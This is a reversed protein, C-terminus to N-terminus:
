KKAIDGLKVSLGAYFSSEQELTRPTKGETYTFELGIKAVQRPDLPSVTDVLTIVASAQFWEATTRAGNLVDQLYFYKASFGVNTLPGSVFFAEAAIKPGLWLYDQNRILNTFGATEGAYLYDANLSPNLSMWLGLPRSVQFSEGLFLRADTPLWAAEFSYLKASDTAVDTTYIAHFRLFESEVIPGDRVTLELGTRASVSGKTASNRKDTVNWEIGPIFAFHTIRTPNGTAYNPANINLDGYVAYFLSGKGVFTYSDKVRDTTYSFSAGKASLDWKESVFAVVSYADRLLVATRINSTPALSDPRPTQSRSIKTPTQLAPIDQQIAKSRSSKRQAAAQLDRNLRAVSEPTLKGESNLYPRLTVDLSQAGGTQETAVGNTTTISLIILVRAISRLM